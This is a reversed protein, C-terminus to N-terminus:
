EKELIEFQDLFVVKGGWPIRAKTEGQILTGPHTGNEYSARVAYIPKGWKSRGMPIAKTSNADWKRWTGKGIWVQFNPLMVEVDGVPFNGGDWELMYKGICDEGNHHTKVLYIDKNEPMERGSPQAMDPIKEDKLDLWGLAKYKGLIVLRLRDISEPKKEQALLNELQSITLESQILDETAKERAKLSTSELADFMEKHMVEAKIVLSTLLGSCLILTIHKLVM